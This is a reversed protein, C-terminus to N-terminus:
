VIISDYIKKFKIAKEYCLRVFEAHSYGNYIDHTNREPKSKSTLEFTLDGNYGAKKLRYAIGEWDALGDFPLLHADDKWTIVDGTIKMNDNLHTCYLKDAYKGILDRSENYCMEHGTDICFKVTDDNKFADLLADLYVQGETNELAVKVGVKRAQEFVQGYRDIGVQNPTFKNFGIIAHMVVLDVGLTAAHRVCRIHNEMEWDGKIGEEWMRDVTGFNAHISQYYLGYRKIKEAVSFNGRQDDFGTFVGEWGAKAYDELAENDSVAYGLGMGLVLKNM